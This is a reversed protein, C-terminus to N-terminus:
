LAGSASIVKEETTSILFPIKFIDNGTPVHLQKIIEEDELLNLRALLRTCKEEAVEMMEDANCRSYANTDYQFVVLHHDISEKLWESISDVWMQDTKGMAFGYTCIIDSEFITTQARQIRREDFEVNFVPKVLARAGKASLEFNTKLQNINDVGLVIDGDLSGHIHLIDPHKREYYNTWYQFLIELSHTYNFVIFSYEIENDDLQDKIRNRENPTLGSYFANLSEQIPLAIVHPSKAEFCRKKLNEEQKDLYSVLHKKFDRVCEVLQAESAFREAQTSLGLEFDSWLEYNCQSLMEKFQNIIFSPSDSKVYDKYMDVYRTEMGLGLDFGNGILFTIKKVAPFEIEPM